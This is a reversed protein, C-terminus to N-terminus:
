KMVDDLIALVIQTDDAKLTETNMGRAELIMKM